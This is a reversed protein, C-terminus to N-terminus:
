NIIIVVVIVMMIMMMKYHLSEINYVFVKIQYSYHVFYLMLSLIIVASLSYYKLQFSCGHKDNLIIQREFKNQCRLAPAKSFEM